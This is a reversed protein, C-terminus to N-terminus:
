VRHPAALHGDGDTTREAPQERDPCQEEPDQEGGGASSTAPAVAYRTAGLLLHHVIALTPGSSPTRTTSSVLQIAAGPAPATSASMPASTILTSGIVPSMARPMLRRARSWGSEGSMSAENVTSLRPLRLMVTAM